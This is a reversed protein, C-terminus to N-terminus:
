SRAALLPELCPYSPNLWAQRVETAGAHYRKTNCSKCRTALNDVDVALDWTDQQAIVHLPIIHDAELQADTGCDVCQYGDRELCQARAEKWKPDNKIQEHHKSM